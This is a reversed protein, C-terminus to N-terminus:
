GAAHFGAVSNRRVQTLDLHGGRRTLGMSDALADGIATTSNGHSSSLNLRSRLSSWEPAAAREDAAAQGRSVQTLSRGEDEVRLGLLLRAAPTLKASAHLKM